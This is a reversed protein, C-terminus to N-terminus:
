KRSFRGFDKALTGWLMFPRRLQHVKFPGKSRDGAKPLLGLWAGFHDFHGDAGPERPSGLAALISGLVMATDLAALISGLVMATDLAPWASRLTWDTWPVSGPVQRPLIDSYTM